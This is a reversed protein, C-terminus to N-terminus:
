LLINCYLFHLMGLLDSSHKRAPEYLEDAGSNDVDIDSYSDLFSYKVM